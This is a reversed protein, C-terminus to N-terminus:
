VPLKRIVTRSQTYIYGEWKRCRKRRKKRKQRSERNYARKIAIKQRM